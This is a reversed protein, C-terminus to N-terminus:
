RGKGGAERYMEELCVKIDNRFPKDGKRQYENHKRKLLTAVESPNIPHTDPLDEMLLVIRNEM